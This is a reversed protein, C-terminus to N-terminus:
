VVGLRDRGGGHVGEAGGDLGDGVVEGGGDAVEADGDDALVAVLGQEKVHGEVVLVAELEGDALAEADADDGGGGDDLHRLDELKDAGLRGFTDGEQGIEEFGARVEDGEGVVEAILEGEAGVALGGQDETLIDDDADKDEVEATAGSESGGENGREGTGDSQEERRAEEVHLSQSIQLSSGTKETNSALHRLDGGNPLLTSGALEAGKSYTM